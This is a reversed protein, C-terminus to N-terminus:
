PPQGDVATFRASGRLLAHPTPCWSRGCLWAGDIGVVAGAVGNCPRSGRIARSAGNDDRLDASVRVVDKNDVFKADM